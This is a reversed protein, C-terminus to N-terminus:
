SISSHRKFALSNVWQPQTICIHMLLSVMMQESLPKDGSRRWAMIQVLTPINNIPGKPVFKLSIKISIIVNENVFFASSLTTQSIAAMNDRSWHTLMPYQQHKQLPIKHCLWLQLIYESWYYNIVSIPVWHSYWTWKQLSCVTQQHDLMIIQCSMQLWLSSWAQATVSPLLFDRIYTAGWYAVFKNIVWIYNSCRRDASSWSCRWERSLVQSWHITCLSSCSSFLFM